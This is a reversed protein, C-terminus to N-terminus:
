MELATRIQQVTEALSKLQRPRLYYFRKDSFSTKVLNTAMLYEPSVHLIECLQLLAPISPDYQGSEYGQYTSRAIMCKASFEGADLGADLRLLHLRTGFDAGMLSPATEIMCKIITNLLTIARQRMVPPMKELTSQIEYIAKLETDQSFLGTLLQNPSVGKANCISVVRKFNPGRRGLEYNQITNPSCGCEAAFIQTSQGLNGRLQQLNKGFIRYYQTDVM